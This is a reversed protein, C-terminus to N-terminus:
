KILRYGSIIDELERVTLVLIQFNGESIKWRLEYKGDERKSLELNKSFM